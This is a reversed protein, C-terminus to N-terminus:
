SRTRPVIFIVSAFGFLQIPLIFVFLATSGHDTRNYLLKTKYTTHSTILYMRMGLSVASRFLSLSLSHESGALLLHEIM